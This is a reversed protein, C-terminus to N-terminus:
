TFVHMPFMERQAAVKEAPQGSIRRAKTLMDRLLKRALNEPYVDREYEVYWAELFKMTSIHFPAYVEASFAVIQHEGTKWRDISCVVADMILALTELPLEEMGEFYHGRRNLGKKAFFAGNLVKQFVSHHCITSLDDTKTPDSYMFTGTLAEVQQRNDERAQAINEDTPDTLNNIDIFDYSAPVLADAVTVVVGRVQSIRAHILNSEQPTRAPIDDPNVDQRECGAEWADDILMEIEDDDAGPDGSPSAVPWALKTTVDRQIPDFSAKVIGQREVDLDKISRSGQKRNAKKKRRKKNKNKKLSQDMESESGSSAVAARKRKRKQVDVDYETVFLPSEELSSQANKHIDDYEGDNAVAANNWPKEEYEGDNDHDGDADGLAPADMNNNSNGTSWSNASDDFALQSSNPGSPDVEFNKLIQDMQALQESSFPPQEPSFPPQEPSLPPPPPLGLNARPTTYLASNNLSSFSPYTPQYNQPMRTSEQRRHHSPIPSSSSMHGPTSPIPAYNQPLRGAEQPAIPSFAPIHRLASPAHQQQLAVPALPPRALAPSNALPHPHQPRSPVAMSSASSQQSSPTSTSAQPPITTTQQAAANRERTEKARKGQLQGKKVQANHNQLGMTPNPKRGGRGVPQPGANQPFHLGGAHSM